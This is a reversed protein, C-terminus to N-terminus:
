EFIQLYDPIQNPNKILFEDNVLLTVLLIFRSWAGLQDDWVIWWLFISNMLWGVVKIDKHSMILSYNWMSKGTM